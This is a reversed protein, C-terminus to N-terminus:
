KGGDRDAPKGKTEGADPKRGRDEIRGGEVLQLHGDTVVREGAALGNEIVTEGGSTIGTVVQRYEVRDDDKVVFVHSDDQGIQVSQSPVVLAGKRSGLLLTVATLQGPWLERGANAFEAKLRITGTAPDIGNDIFTLKGDLTTEAKGPITAVVALHNDEMAVRVEALREGAIDFAVDVPAIRNITVLPTDANAKVLNGADVMIEGALGDFPAELTCNQLDLRASELAAEDARVAAKLGAVRTAAQDAQAQSVFGKGAAPRYRQLEMEANALEARDRALVAEKAKVLAQYPRTDITFLVDGRRVQTGDTFHVTHLIGGVQSRIEVSASAEVRGTAEIGVAVDRAICLATTVATAPKRDSPGNKAEQSGGSCGALLLVAAAAILVVLRSSRIPFPRRDFPAPPMTTM